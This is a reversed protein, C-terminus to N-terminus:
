PLKGSISEPSELSLLLMSHTGCLHPSETGDCTLTSHGAAACEANYATPRKTEFDLTLQLLDMLCGAEVFRHLRIQSGVDPANHSNLLNEKQQMSSLPEHVVWLQTWLLLEWTTSQTSCCMSHTHTIRQMGVDRSVLITM